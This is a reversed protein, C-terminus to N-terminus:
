KAKIWFMAYYEYSYEMGGVLQMEPTDAAIEKKTDDEGAQVSGPLKGARTSYVMVLDAKINKAHAVAKDPPTEGGKFSSVGLLDYGDRLLRDTDAEKDSGRYIRVETGAPKAAPADIRKKYADAYANAADATFGAVPLAFCAAAILGCLLTMVNSKM